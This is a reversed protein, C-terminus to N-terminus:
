LRQPRHLLRLLCNHATTAAIDPYCACGFVHLHEYSPASGSLTVHPCAISITKTPLCNLLYVTTHLGEDWYRGLLSAHILLTHIVNNITCIIHEAKGNQPPHTPVRCGCSPAKPYSSPGSPRTTLSVDTTVNYLKSLAASSLLLM